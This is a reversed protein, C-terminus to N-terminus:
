LGSAQPECVGLAFAATVAADVANGGDALAEAGARTALWHQTSVMGGLSFALRQPEGHKVSPEIFESDPSNPRNNM